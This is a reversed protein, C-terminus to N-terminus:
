AEHGAASDVGVMASGEAASGEASGVAVWGGASDVAAVLISTSLASSGAPLTALSSWAEAHSDIDGRRNVSSTVAAFFSKKVTQGEKNAARHSHFFCVGAEPLAAGTGKGQKSGEPWARFRRLAGRSRDERVTPPAFCVRQRM